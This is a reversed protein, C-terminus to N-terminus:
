IRLFLWVIGVGSMIIIIVLIVNFIISLQIMRGALPNRGLAQIGSNIARSFILFGFGFSMMLITAAVVYKFVKIPEEYTAMQSISFIQLISNNLPSSIQMFHLNLSVNILEVTKKDTFSIDELAQGVIYGNRTAKMGVGPTDSSTVYDGKKINGNSGSVKTIVTGVNVVPVGEQDPKTKLAIAPRSAVVGVVQPDYTTRSLIYGKSTGSIIDGDEVQANVDMYTAIGISSVDEANAQEVNLFVFFAFFLAVGTVLVSLKKM